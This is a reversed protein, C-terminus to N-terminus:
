IRMEIIMVIARLNMEMFHRIGFFITYSLLCSSFEM